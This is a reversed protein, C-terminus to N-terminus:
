TTVIRPTTTPYPNKSQKPKLLWDHTDTLAAKADKECLDKPSNIDMNVKGVFTVLGSKELKDMLLLTAPTHITAFVCARTTAGRRLRKIFVEYAEDAYELSEYRAEEPFTHTNLWEILELDMGLGRFAYQPAHVHLDCLGPIIIHDGYDTIPFTSYKEPIESVSAFVGKSVGDECVLYGNPTSNLQTPTRSYCINGKIIFNSSENQLNKM